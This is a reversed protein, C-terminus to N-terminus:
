QGRVRTFVFPRRLFVEPFESEAVESSANQPFEDAKM